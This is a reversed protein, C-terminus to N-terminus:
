VLCKGRQSSHVQNVLLQGTPFPGSSSTRRCRCERTDVGKMKKLRRTLHPHIAGPGRAFVRGPVCVCEVCVCLVSVRLGEM